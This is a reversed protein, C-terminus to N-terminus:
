TLSPSLNKSLVQSKSFQISDKLSPVAAPDGATERMMREERDQKVSTVTAPTYRDSLMTEVNYGITGIVLAVPFVVVPIVYRRLLAAALPWM